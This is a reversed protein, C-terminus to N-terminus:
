APETGRMRNGLHLTQDLLTAVDHEAGVAVAVEYARRFAAAARACEDAVTERAMDADNRVREITTYGQTKSDLNPDRVFFPARLTRSQHTINVRVNRILQRATDHWHALAAKKTDWEFLDHLPSDKRRADAVVLDPTLTGHKAHLAILYENVNHKM